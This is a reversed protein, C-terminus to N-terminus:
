LLFFHRFVSPSISQGPSDDEDDYSQDNKEMVQFYGYPIRDSTEPRQNEDHPSEPFEIESDRFMFFFGFAHLTFIFALSIRRRIRIM